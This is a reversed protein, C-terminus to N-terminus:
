QADIIEQHRTQEILADVAASGPLSPSAGPVAVALAGGAMARELAALWPLGSALSAGLVGAFADGAATTDVPETPFPAHETHGLRDVCVAGQGGLTIVARRTGREVFWAGARRASERDVVEIGTIASAESENPTVVDAFAWAEDDLVAAPAPDLVVTMGLEHGRRAAYGAIPLPIELQLLLVSAHGLSAQVAQEVVEESLHANALPVMVIDNEGHADVRIHAIGSPGPVVGVHTTDIGERQLGGLVVEQFLDDGVCGVMSTPAGARAAAIAQNAGKGGLVLTFGDGLLTEGPRPRRPGFATLDATISGVVLVGQRTM